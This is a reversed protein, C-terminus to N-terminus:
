VVEDPDLKFRLCLQRAQASGCAFTEMVHSWRVRKRRVRRHANMVAHQILKCDDPEPLCNELHATM